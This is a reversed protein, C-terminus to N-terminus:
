GIFSSSASSLLGGPKDPHLKIAKAHYAKKVEANTADKSIGSLISPM